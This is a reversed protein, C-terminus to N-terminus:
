SKTALTQSRGVTTARQGTAAIRGAITLPLGVNSTSSFFHIQQPAQKGGHGGICILSGSCELIAIQIPPLCEFARELGENWFNTAAPSGFLGVGDHYFFVRFIEHGKAIAAKAFQYATDSAQHQYPGENIQISHHQHYYYGDQM